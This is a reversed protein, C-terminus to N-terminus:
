AQALLEGAWDWIQSDQYATATSLFQKDSLYHAKELPYAFDPKAAILGLVRVHTGDIPGLTLQEKSVLDMQKAGTFPSPHLTFPSPHLTFPSPHLTFPNVM